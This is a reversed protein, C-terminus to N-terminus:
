TIGIASIYIYIYIYLKGVVIRVSIELEPKKKEYVNNGLEKEIGLDILAKEKDIGLYNGADLYNIFISGEELPAADSTWFVILLSSGKSSSFILSYSASKRGCEVLM